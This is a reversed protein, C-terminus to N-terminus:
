DIYYSAHASVVQDNRFNLTLEESAMEDDCSWTASTPGDQAPAGLAKIVQQRTKGVYASLLVPANRRTATISALLDREIPVAEHIVVAGSDFTLEHIRDMADPVHRNPQETVRTSAPPGFMAAATERSEGIASRSSTIAECVTPLAVDDPVSRCTPLVLLAVVALLVPVRNM